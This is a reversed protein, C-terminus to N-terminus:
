PLDAGPTRAGRDISTAAASAPILDLVARAAALVRRPLPDATLGAAALHPDIPVAVLRGAARLGAATPGLSATVVAPWKRPGVVTLLAPASVRGLLEEARRMGPATARCVVVVATAAAASDMGVIAVPGADVITVPRGSDDSATISAAAPTALDITVMGRRGRFWRGTPDVGLVELSAETLGSEEPTDRAILRAATGDSSAADALALAVTSAGAGNHAAFVVIWRGRGSWPVIGPADLGPRGGAAAVPRTTVTHRERGGRSTAIAVAAQLEAVSLLRDVLAVNATV